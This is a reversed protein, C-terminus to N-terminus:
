CAFSLETASYCRVKHCDTTMLDVRPFKVRLDVKRELEAYPILPHANENIFHVILSLWCALALGHSEGFDVNSLDRHAIKPLVLAAFKSGSCGGKM